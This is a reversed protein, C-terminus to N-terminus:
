APPLGDLFSELVRNFEVPVELNSLHGAAPLVEVRGEPARDAMDRAERVPTLTDEEGALCLVPFAMKALLGTSDPRDRMAELARAVGEPEATEMMARVEAEISPRTARTTNGLLAPVLADALWSVGEKRVREAQQTRREKGAEDDPGSRTDALVLASMRHPAQESIRFAVYGGMSLGLFAANEIGMEDMERLVAQGFQDLHLPGPPTKRFGPFDPALIRRTTLQSQQSNWM